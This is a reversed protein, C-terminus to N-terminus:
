RKEEQSPTEKCPQLSELVLQSKLTITGCSPCVYALPVMYSNDGTYLRVTPPSPGCWAVAMRGCTCKVEDPIM